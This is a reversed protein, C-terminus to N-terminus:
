CTRIFESSLKAVLATTNPVSLPSIIYQGIQMEAVKLLLSILYQYVRVMNSYIQLEFNIAQLTAVHKKGYVCVLIFHARPFYLWYKRILYVRSANFFAEFLDIKNLPILFCMWCSCFRCIFLYIFLNSGLNSWSYSNTGFTMLLSVAVSEQEESSRM